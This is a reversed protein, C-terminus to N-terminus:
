GRPVGVPRLRPPVVRAARTSVDHALLHGLVANVLLATLLAAGVSATLEVLSGGVQLLNFGPLFWVTFGAWDRARLRDAAARDVVSLVLGLVVFGLVVGSTGFNIYFEM